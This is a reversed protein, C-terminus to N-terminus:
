RRLLFLLMLGGEFLRDIIYEILADANDLDVNMDRNNTGAHVCVINPKAPLSLDLYGRIDALYKGSHGKHNNDRMNVDQLSGIMDITANAGKQQAQLNQRLEGHYGNM